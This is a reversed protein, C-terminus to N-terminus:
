DEIRELDLELTAYGDIEFHLVRIMVIENDQAVTFVGEDPTSAHWTWNDIVTQTRDSSTVVSVRVGDDSLTSVRWRGAPMRLRGVAEIGFHDPGIAAGALQGSTDEILGSRALDAPGGMGFPLSLTRVGFPRSGPGRVLERWGDFDERPDPGDKWSFARCLWRARILTGTVTTEFGEASIRVSYPAVGGEAEIAVLVSRPMSGPTVSVTYGDGGEAEAAEVGLIEYVATGGGLSVPRIMPSEHDWPGWGDMVIMERGRLHTHESAPVGDVIRVPRTDGLVEFEPLALGPIPGDESIPTGGNARVAEGISEDIDFTNNVLAVPDFPGGDNRLQVAVLRETPSMRHFSAPTQRIVFANDAIVNGTVGRYNAAAWPLLAFDGPADWWIHVGARNDLFRNAIIMNGASHEINVGGRELGYAMGGNAEFLNEMLLMDQSFGGWIGCIANEAFRNRWVVNDFSFTMELGHAPAYSLDNYAFINGNCGTREHAALTDADYDIPGEAADDGARQERETEGLADLGGFGFVGDGGHTISNEAIINNSCQEFMLIGASDQGRNYVGEVHGRVCFDFRNRTITSGTTRWLALGWGSLFSCDNDYIQADRVRDLIIGNQGRRVRVRRILVREADEVYLAAGYREAWENDDNHHPYLWDSSDERTPTSGLKQRFNDSLDANTVELGDAASAFVGIKYGHVAINQLIVGRHADIVIGTGALTNWPTGEAAGRLVSGAFDIVIDDGTVHIVGNGDADEIVLGEPIRVVCSEGISVNDRDVVMDPLAPPTHAPQLGLTAAALFSHIM